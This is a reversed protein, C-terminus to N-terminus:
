IFSGELLFRRGKKTLRYRDPEDPKSGGIWCLYEGDFTLLYIHYKVDRVSMSLTRVLTAIECESNQSRAVAILIKLEVKSLNDM